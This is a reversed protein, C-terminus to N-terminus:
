KFQTQGVSLIKKMEELSKTTRKIDDKILQKADPDQVQNIYTKAKVLCTLKFTSLERILLTELPSVKEM